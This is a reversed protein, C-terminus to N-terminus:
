SPKAGCRECVNENKSDKIWRHQKCPRRKSFLPVVNSQDAEGQEDPALIIPVIMLLLIIFAVLIIFDADM